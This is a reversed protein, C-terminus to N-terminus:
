ATHPAVDWTPLVPCGVEVPESERFRIDASWWRGGDDWGSSQNWARLRLRLLRGSLPKYAGASSQPQHLGGPLPVARPHLELSKPVTPKPREAKSEKSTASRTSDAM